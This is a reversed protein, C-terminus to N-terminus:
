FNRRFRMRFVNIPKGLRGKMRRNVVLSVLTPDDEDLYLIIDIVGDDILKETGVYYQDSQLHLPITQGRLEEVPFDEVFQIKFDNSIKFKSDGIPAWDGIWQKKWEIAKGEGGGLDSEKAHNGDMFVAFFILGLIPAAYSLQNRRMCRSLLRETLLGKQRKVRGFLVMASLWVEILRYSISM